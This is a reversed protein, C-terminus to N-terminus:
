ITDSNPRTYDDIGNSQFPIAPITKSTTDVQTLPIVNESTTITRKMDSTQVNSFLCGKLKFKLYCRILILVVAAVIIVLGILVSITVALVTTSLPNFSDIFFIIFQVYVFILWM